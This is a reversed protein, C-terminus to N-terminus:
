EKGKRTNQSHKNLIALKVYWIVSSGYVENKHVGDEINQFQGNIFKCRATSKDTFCVEVIEGEKLNDTNIM